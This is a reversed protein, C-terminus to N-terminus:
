GAPRCRRSPPLTGPRGAVSIKRDSPFDSRVLRRKARRSPAGTVVRVYPSSPVNRRHVSRLRPPKMSSARRVATAACPRVVPLHVIYRLLMALRASVHFFGRAGSASRRLLRACRRPARSSLARHVSVADHEERREVDAVPADVVAAVAAELPGVRAPGGCARRRPTAGAISFSSRTPWLRSIRTKPPM